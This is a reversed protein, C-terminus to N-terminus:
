FSAATDKKEDALIESYAVRSNDDVAHHLFAYGRGPNAGKRAARDRDSSTRKDQASGRGHAHWEGGTPIKGLKKVDIHVLDGPASAHYRVPRPKRTPLGTAQDVHDLRPKGYRGLVRGVTSRPIGLLAAIRHPGWHRNFRLAIIRREREVPLRNTSSAPRASQDTLLEGARCRRAWESATAPSCQFREAARRISWGHDVILRALRLRGAPTFPANAHTM